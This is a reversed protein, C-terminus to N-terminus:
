LLKSSQLSGHKSFFTTTPLAPLVLEGPGLCRGTGAKGPRLMAENFRLLELQEESFHLLLALASILCATCFYTCLYEGLQLWRQFHVWTSLSAPPAPCRTWRKTRIQAETIYGTKNYLARPERVHKKAM